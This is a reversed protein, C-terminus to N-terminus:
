EYGNMLKNVLPALINPEPEKMKNAMMEGLWKFVVPDEELLADIEQVELGELLARLKEEM